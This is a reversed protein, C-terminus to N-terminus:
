PAPIVRFVDDITSAANHMREPLVHSYADM